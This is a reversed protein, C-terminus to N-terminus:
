SANLFTCPCVFYKIKVLFFFPYTGKVLVSLKKLKMHNVIFHWKLM